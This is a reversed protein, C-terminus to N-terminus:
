FHILDFIVDAFSEEHHVEPLYQLLYDRVAERDVDALPIVIHPLLLRDAEVILKPARTEGHEDSIWFSHLKQYLYLDKNILIGKPILKITIISPLRSGYLMVTFGGILLILALLVNHFILALIVAIVTVIIVGKYWGVDKDFHEYEPTQWEM